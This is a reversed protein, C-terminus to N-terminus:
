KQSPGFGNQVGGPLTTLGQGYATSYGRPDWGRVQEDPSKRQPTSHLIEVTWFQVGQTQQTGAGGGLVEEGPLGVQPMGVVWRFAPTLGKGCSGTQMEGTRTHSHALPHATQVHTHSGTLATHTHTHTPAHATLTYMHSHALTCHTYILVTHTRTLAHMRTPTLFCTCHTLTPTLWLKHMHSPHTFTHTHTHASLQSPHKTDM